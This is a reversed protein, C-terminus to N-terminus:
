TSGQTQAEMGGGHTGVKVGSPAKIVLTYSATQGYADPMAVFSGVIANYMNLHYSLCEEQRFKLKVAGVGRLLTSPPMALVLLLLAISAPASGLMARRQLLM